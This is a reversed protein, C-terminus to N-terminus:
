SIESSMYIDKIQKHIQSLIFNTHNFLHFFTVHLPLVAKESILGILLALYVYYYMVIRQLVKDRYVFLLLKFSLM